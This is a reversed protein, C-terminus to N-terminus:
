GKVHWVSGRGASLHGVVVYVGDEGIGLLHWAGKFECNRAQAIDFPVHTAVHFLAGFNFEGEPQSFHEGEPVKDEGGKM